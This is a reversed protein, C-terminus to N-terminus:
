FVLIKHTKNPGALVQGIIKGASNKLKIRTIGKTNAKAFIESLTSRTVNKNREPNWADECELTLVNEIMKGSKIIGPESFDEIAVRGGLFSKYLVVTLVILGIIGLVFVQTKNFKSGKKAGPTTKEKTKEKTIEKKSEKSKETYEQKKDEYEQKIDGLTAAFTKVQDELHPKKAVLIQYREVLGKLLKVKSNTYKNRTKAIQSSLGVTNMSIESNLIVDVEKETTRGQDFSSETVNLLTREDESDCFPIDNIIRFCNEFKVFLMVLKRIVSLYVETEENGGAFAVIEWPQLKPFFFNTDAIKGQLEEDVESGSETTDDQMMSGIVEAFFTDECLMLEIWPKLDIKKGEFDYRVEGRLHAIFNDLKELLQDDADEFKIGMGVLSGSETPIDLLRAVTGQILLDEGEDQNILIQLKKGSEFTEKAAVLVGSRSLNISVAVHKKSGEILFIKRKVEVRLEVRPPTKYIPEVYSYLKEPVEEVTLYLDCEADLARNKISENAFDSILVIKTNKLGEDVKLRRCVEIGSLGPMAVSLIAIGAEADKIQEYSDKGDVAYIIKVEVRELFETVQQLQPSLENFIIATKAM